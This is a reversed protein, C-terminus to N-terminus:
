FKWNCLTSQAYSATQMIWRWGAAIRGWTRYSAPLITVRKAVPLKKIFATNWPESLLRLKPTDL